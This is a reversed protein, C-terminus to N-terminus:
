EEIGVFSIGRKAYNIELSATVHGAQALCFGSVVRLDSCESGGDEDLWGAGTGM